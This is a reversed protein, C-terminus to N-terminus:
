HGRAWRWQPLVTKHRYRLNRIDNFNVLIHNPTVAVQWGKAEHRAPNFRGSTLSGGTNYREPDDYCQSSSSWRSLTILLSDPVERHRYRQVRDIRKIKKIVAWRLYNAYKCSPSPHLFSSISDRSSASM